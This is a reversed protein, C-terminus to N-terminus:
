TMQARPQDTSEVLQGDRLTMAYDATQAVAPSHSAVIVVTGQETLDRLLALVDRETSADLEGTPEDALVVAPHHAVAIAVAVRATEGGSLESPRAGARDSLGLDSLLKACWARDLRGALRQALDINQRLTLHEILNGSQFVVGVLRARLATREREPRHSIRTGDIRVTGGDPEDLGALCALLTSKGSGSPGTVAVFEGAFARLSVGRLALTEEEGGRYFRYLDTTELVLSM